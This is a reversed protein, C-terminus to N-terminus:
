LIVCTFIFGDVMFPSQVEVKSTYVSTKVCVIDVSKRSM